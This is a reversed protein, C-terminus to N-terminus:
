DEVAMRPDELLRFHAILDFGSVPNADDKLSEILHINEKQIEKLASTMIEHAALSGVGQNLRNYEDGTWSWRVTDFSLAPSVGVLFVGMGQAARMTNKGAVGTGVVIKIINRQEFTSCSIVSYHEALLLAADYFDAAYRCVQALAKDTIADRKVEVIVPHKDYKAVGLLDIRGSPIVFQRAVWRDVFPVAQPNEWLWDEIDQENYRM